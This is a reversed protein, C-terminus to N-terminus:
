LNRNTMALAVLLISSRVHGLCLDRPLTHWHLRLLHKTITSRVIDHRCSVKSAYLAEQYHSRIMALMEELEQRTDEVTDTSSREILGPSMASREEHAGPMPSCTAPVPKQLCLRVTSSKTTDEQDSLAKPVLRTAADRWWQDRQLQRSEYNHAKPGSHGNMAGAHLDKLMKLTVWVGLKCLAYVGNQVKEVASLGNDAVTQAILVSPSNLQGNNPEDQELLDIRASFLTLGYYNAELYALPLSSRPLLLRPVLM